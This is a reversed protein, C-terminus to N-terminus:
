RYGALRPMDISRMCLRIEEDALSQKMHIRRLFPISGSDQSHVHRTLFRRPHARYLTTDNPIIISRRVSARVVPAEDRLLLPREDCHRNYSTISRRRGSPSAVITSMQARLVADLRFWASPSSMVAPVLVYQSASSENWLASLADRM